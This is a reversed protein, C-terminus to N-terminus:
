KENTINKSAFAKGWDERMTLFRDFAHDLLEETIMNQVDELGFVDIENIKYIQEYQDLEIKVIYKSNYNFIQIKYKPHPIEALVRM